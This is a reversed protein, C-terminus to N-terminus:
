LTGDLDLTPEDREVEFARAGRDSVVQVDLEQAGAFHQFYPFGIEEIADADACDLEWAAHFETHGGAPAHDHDEDAATDHDHEEGHAEDDHHDEDADHGAETLLEAASSVVECGAAEPLALLDLPRALLDKAAAVAALDADAEAPHEFGVIDAGPARLTLSLRGGERALELRGHGHEHAGLARHEQAAAPLLAAAALIPAAAFALPRLPM